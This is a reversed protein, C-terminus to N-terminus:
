VGSPFNEVQAQEVIEQGNVKCTVRIRMMLPKQGHLTNTVTLCQTITGNANPLLINGSAPDLKLLLFKPVAAQLMLDTCLDSSCNLYTAHIMTIEPNNTPKSFNFLVKLRNTQLAVISPFMPGQASYMELFQENGFSTSPHEKSDETFNKDIDSIGTYPSSKSSSRTDMNLLDQLMSFGDLTQGSAEKDISLDLLNVSDTSSLKTCITPATIHNESFLPPSAVRVTPGLAAVAGDARKSEYVTENLAPIRDALVKRISSYKLIIASFEVARQQVELTSSHKYNEIMDKIRETCTDYRSSLKLLAVLLFVRINISEKSKAAIDELTDLVEHETITMPDEIELEGAHNVLMEGYEGICWIAILAFSEQNKWKGVMNYLLRVTYGHLKPTNSIIVILMYLSDSKVFEGAESILHIMNQIYWLKSSAFKQIVSCIKMTLDQKLDRSSNMLFELLEKTLAKVNDETALAYVLDLARKKISLDADKLCEMVISRHRQIAQLDLAVIKVLMNLAVYRINNDNNSLFHGLVNIALVRLGKTAEIHVVTQVCEYLIASGPVKRADTNTMVQALVDSMIDSSDADAKGLLRLLRLIEIQLLPDSIGSCDYEARYESTLLNKLIEVLNSTEKRMQELLTSNTQCLVICLKIASILVGHHKDSLLTIAPRLLSEGFDPVKRVIKVCCLAAKKRVYPNSHQLLKSVEAALDSAMEASCLNAFACLAVGVIFQNANNFDNKISNTVLMLLEQKEDLLLMFGLYGIKKEPFSNGAILKVCEMQGFHTPYGLMHMFM